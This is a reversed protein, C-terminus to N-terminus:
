CPTGKLVQLGSVRWDGKTDREFIGRINSRSIGVTLAKGTKVDLRGVHSFDMCDGMIAQDAGDVPPGWYPRHGPIGYNDWGKNEFNAAAVIVRKIQPEVAV